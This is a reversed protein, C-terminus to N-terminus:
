SVSLGSPSVPPTADSSGPIGNYTDSVIIDDYYIYWNDDSDADDYSYAPIEIAYINRYNLDHRMRIGAVELRQVGDIWARIIGNYNGNTNMYFYMEFTHWEEDNLAPPETGIYTTNACPVGGNDFRFTCAADNDIQSGDGCGIRSAYTVTYNSYGEGGEGGGFLKVFKTGYSYSTQDNSVIKFSFRLYGEPFDGFPNPDTIQLRYGSSQTAGFFHAMLGRSGNRGGTESLVINSSNSTNWGHNSMADSYEDFNDEFYVLAHSKFPFLFISFVFVSIFFIRRCHMRVSFKGSM